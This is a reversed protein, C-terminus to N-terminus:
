KVMSGALTIRKPLIATIEKKRFPVLGLVCHTYVITRTSILKDPNTVTETINIARVM